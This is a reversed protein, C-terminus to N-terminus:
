RKSRLVAILEKLNRPNQGLDGKGVRSQSTATVISGGDTRNITVHVDDVFRFVRTTRTLHMTVAEPSAEKSEVKWVSESKTWAEIRDAAQDASYGLEVPRLDPDDARADIAATNTTLGRLVSTFNLMIWGAVVIFFVRRLGKYTTQRLQGELRKKFSNPPVNSSM